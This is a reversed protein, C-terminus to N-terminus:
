GQKIQKPKRDPGIAVYTYTGETIKIEAGDIRSRKAFSQIKVRISSNGIREVETYCSVEDGVYAPAHFTMADVSVTVVPGGAVRIAHSAGALDMMSMMWGGFMDGNPNTDTPMAIVRLSPIKGDNSGKVLAGRSM